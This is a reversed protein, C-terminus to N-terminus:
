AQHAGATKLLSFSGAATKWTTKQICGEVSYFSSPLPPPVMLVPQRLFDRKTLLPGALGFACLAVM